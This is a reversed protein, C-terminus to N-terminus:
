QCVQAGAEGAPISDIVLPSCAGVGIALGAGFGVPRERSHRPPLSVESCCRDHPAM